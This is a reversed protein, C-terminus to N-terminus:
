PSPIESKSKWYLMHEYPRNPRLTFSKVESIWFYKSEHNQAVHGGTKETEKKKRLIMDFFDSNNLNSNSIFAIDQM